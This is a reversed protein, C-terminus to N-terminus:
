YNSSRAAGLLIRELKTAFKDLNKNVKELSKSTKEANQALGGQSAGLAKSAETIGPSTELGPDAGPISIDRVHVTPITENLRAQWDEEFSEEIGRAPNVDRYSITDPSLESVGGIDSHSDDVKERQRRSARTDWRGLRAPVPVEGLAQWDVRSSKLPESIDKMGYIDADTPSYLWDRGGPQFRTASSSKPLVKIEEPSLRHREEDALREARRAERGAREEASQRRRDVDRPDVRDVPVPPSMRDDTRPQWRNPRPTGAEIPYNAQQTIWAEGAQGVGTEQLKKHLAIFKNISEILAGETIKKQKLMENLADYYEEAKKTDSPTLKYKESIKKLDDKSKRGLVAESAAFYPEPDKYAGMGVLKEGPSKTASGKIAGLGELDSLIKDALVSAAGKKGEKTKAKEARTMTKSVVDGVRSEAEPSLQGPSTYGEPMAGPMDSKHLGLYTQYFFDDLKESITDKINLVPDVIFPDVVHKDFGGITYDWATKKVSKFVGPRVKAADIAAKIRATSEVRRAEIDREKISMGTAKMGVAEEDSGAVIRGAAVGAQGESLGSVMFTKKAEKEAQLQADQWQTGTMIAERIRQPNNWLELLKANNRDQMKSGMIAGMEPMSLKGGMWKSYIDEDLVLKQDEGKGVTKSMAVLLMKGLPTEARKQFEWATKQGYAGVIDETGPPVYRGMEEVTMAGSKLMSKGLLLGGESIKAGTVGLLGMRQGMQAGAAMHGMVGQSTLGTARGVADAHMAFSVMQGQPVGWQRFTAVDKIADRVDTERLVKMLTKIQKAASKVTETFQEPTTVGQFLGYETGYEMIDAYDGMKLGGADLRRSDDRFEKFMKRRTSPSFGRSLAGGENIGLRASTDKLLSDFEMGQNVRGMVHSTLYGAGAFGALGGALSGFLGRGLLPGLMKSGLWGGGMEAAVSAVSGSLLTSRKAFDESMLQQYDSKLIYPSIPRGTFAGRASEFYTASGVYRGAEPSIYSQVAPQRIEQPRAQSTTLNRLTNFTSSIAGTFQSLVNRLTSGVERLTSTSAQLDGKDMYGGYYATTPNIPLPPATALSLSLDGQYRSTDPNYIDEYAM